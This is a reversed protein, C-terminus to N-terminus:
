LITKQLNDGLQNSPNGIDFKRYSLDPLLLPTQKKSILKEWEVNLLWPHKKM